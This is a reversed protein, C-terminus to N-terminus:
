SEAHTKETVQTPALCTAASLPRLDRAVTSLFAVHQQLWRALPPNAVFTAFHPVTSQPLVVVNANQLIESTFRPGLLVDEGYEERRVAYYFPNASYISSPRTYKETKAFSALWRFSKEAFVSFSERGKGRPAVFDNRRGSFPRRSV